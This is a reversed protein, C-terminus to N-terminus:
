FWAQYGEAYLPKAGATPDSSRTTDEGPIASKAVQQLVWKTWSTLPELQHYQSRHLFSAKIKKQVLEEDLPLYHTM